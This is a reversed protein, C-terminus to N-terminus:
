VTCTVESMKCILHWGKMIIDIYLIYINTYLKITIIAHKKKKKKIFNHGFVLSTATVKVESRHGGFDSWNMRSDLHVNIDFKFSNGWPIRSICHECSHSPCVCLPFEIGFSIICNEPHFQLLTFMWDLAATIHCPVEILIMWTCM